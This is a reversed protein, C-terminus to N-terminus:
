RFLCVRHATHKLSWAGTQQVRLLVSTTRAGRAHLPWSLSALLDEIAAITLGTRERLRAYVSAIHPVDKMMAEAGPRMGMKGAGGRLSVVISFLRRLCAAVEFFEIQEVRCGAIREYEGLVSERAEPHGYTSMLLLTWALDMRYDSVQVNTWDIVFATGDDRLLVNYPHYDMHIMSPRGFRVGALREDLWGFVPDFADDLLSHAYAQYQSLERGSRPGENM